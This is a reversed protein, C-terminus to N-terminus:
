SQFDEQSFLHGKSVPRVLARGLLEAQSEPPFGLGPRLWLIDGEKIRHGVEFDQKAAASRRAAPMVAPAEQQRVPALFAEARRIRSVMAMFEAPDASLAHDRFTAKNKDLTFHKEIIRAGMGVALVAAEIGLTHDSYGVTVDKWRGLAELHRLGARDDPTPYETVCHLLALGPDTQGASRWASHFFERLRAKEVENSLGTSIMVPKGTAAVGQLLDLFNSDGSAIKFAPVLDRLFVVSDLDFPTSLFLVGARTAEKQLERFQAFSLAYKKLQELRDPQDASILNEPVITQFKVADAGAKAAAQVLNKAESLSGEHNNGIEAIVFVKQATEFNGIKM